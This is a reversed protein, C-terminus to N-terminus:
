WPLRLADGESKGGAVEVAPLRQGTALLYVGIELATARSDPAVTLLHEDVITEGLQWTSTPAQGAAPQSDAGVVYRGSSDLLHVFVTYDENMSADARWHLRVRTNTADVREVDLGTLMMASGFRVGLPQTPPPPLATDPEFIRVPGAVVVDGAPAGDPTTVPLAKGSEPDVLGFRVEAVSPPTGPPIQLHLWSIVQDGDRWESPAFGRNYDQAILRQSSRDVLHAFLEWKAPPPRGRVTWHLAYPVYAGPQVRTVLDAGNVRVSSGINAAVVRSPSPLRISADARFLEGDIQGFRDSSTAIRALGDLRQLFDPPEDSRAYVYYVPQDGHVPLVFNVEGDVAHVRASAKPVFASPIPMGDVVLSTAVITSGAPIRDVLDLAHLLDAQFVRNVEPLAPWLVFYDRVTVLSM